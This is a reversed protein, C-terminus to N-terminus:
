YVVSTLSLLGETAFHRKHRNWTESPRMTRHLLELVKEVALRGGAHVVRGVLLVGQGPDQGALEERQVGLAPLIPASRRTELIVPLNNVNM